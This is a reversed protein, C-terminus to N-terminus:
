YASRTIAEVTTGGGAEHGYVMMAAAPDYAADTAASIIIKGGAETAMMWILKDCKRLLEILAEHQAPNVTTTVVPEASADEATAGRSKMLGLVYAIVVAIFIVFSTFPIEMACDRCPVKVKLLTRM